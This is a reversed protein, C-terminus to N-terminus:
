QLRKVTLTELGEFINKKVLESIHSELVVAVYAICVGLSGFRSVLIFGIRLRVAISKFTHYCRFRNRHDNPHAVESTLLIM